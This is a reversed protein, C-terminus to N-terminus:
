FDSGGKTSVKYKKIEKTLLKYDIADPTEIKLNITKAKAGDAVRASYSSAKPAFAKELLSTDEGNYTISLSKLHPTVIEPEQAPPPSSTSEPDGCGAFVLTLLCFALTWVPARIGFTQKKM